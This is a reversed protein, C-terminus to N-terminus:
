SGGYENVASLPAICGKLLEEVVDVEVDAVAIGTECGVLVAAGADVGEEGTRSGV